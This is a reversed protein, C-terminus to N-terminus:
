IPNTGINRTYILWKLIQFFLPKTSQHISQVQNRSVKIELYGDKGWKHWKDMCSVTILHTGKSYGMIEEFTTGNTWNGKFLFGFQGNDWQVVYSKLNDDDPDTLKIKVLFLGNGIKEATIEPADPPRNTRSGTTFSWIPGPTDKSVIQWYYTTYADMLGPNYQTSDLDEVVLLPPNSKGLYVDNGFVNGTWHLFIGSIPVDTEGDEPTPYSPVYSPQNDTIATKNDVSIGSSVSVGFMLLIISIVLTKKCISNM